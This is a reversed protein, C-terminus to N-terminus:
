ECCSESRHVETRCMCSSNISVDAARQAAALREQLEPL